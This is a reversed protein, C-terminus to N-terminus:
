ESAVESEVKTVIVDWDPHGGDNRCDWGGEVDVGSAHATRLLIGIRTQLEAATTISSQDSTM